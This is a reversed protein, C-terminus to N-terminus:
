LKLPDVLLSLVQKKNERDQVGFGDGHQYLYHVVRTMNTNINVFLKLEPSQDTFCQGNLKKWTKNIIGNIHKRAEDESVDMERMYSIISSAADGREQEAVSTGLDNCLRIILSINYILDENKALFKALEETPDNMVSFFSHVSLVTGSSSIWANALYEQLSPVKGRHYWKAELFLSKCFGAWVKKLHLEVECWGKERQIEYAIESTIDSLVQFCIKMCEPLHQVRSSDWRAVAKTFHELEELSGYIDYVDDIILIMLIVKTLWKRFSSYRREHVLGVTCMFSEVVRDRTFSMSELLNLDRWWRSIDKLDKQLGAQVMNFNLKSLELISMNMDNQKEYANIHWKVDFWLVRRHSPLELFYTLYKNLSSDASCCKSKLTRTSFANAENLIDEGESALHSAEYLEILGEVDTCKSEVFSGMEDVFGSFMDQSVEYGQQRLVKFCLAITYLDEQGVVSYRDNELSSAVNMVAEKIEQEFHSALGVKRIKDVLELKTLLDLAGAFVLRVNAQLKEVQKQYYEEDYNSSLSQLFDYKWVNPKYNSSRRNQTESSTHHYQLFQQGVKAQKNYDM